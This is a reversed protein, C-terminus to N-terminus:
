GGTDIVATTLASSGSVIDWAAPLGIARGATGARQKRWLEDTPDATASRVYNPEVTAVSPDHQFAGRVAAAQGPDTRVLFFGTGDIVVASKGGARRVSEARAATSLGPRSRM